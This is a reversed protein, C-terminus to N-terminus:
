LPPADEIRVTVGHGRMYEKLQGIRITNDHFLSAALVAEAGGERVADVFDHLTGAGGSAVVPVSVADTIARTLEIDYGALTGDADMSTLLIEGAGLSAAKVAWEVADLGTPVRGGGTYVEWRGPAVRKADLALVINASGIPEACEAILEPRKVAASNVAVKDAGALLTERADRVSRIGGGVTLPMFITEAVREVVHLTTAHGAPTASIDLFVLEDAGERYYVQAQEVPDGADRLNVFNVGKVVRGDKVDLCPIVRTTVGTSLSADPDVRAEYGSSAVCACRDFVSEARRSATTFPTASRVRGAARRRLRPRVLLNRSATTVTTAFHAGTEAVRTAAPSAVAAAASASRRARCAAVRASAPAAEIAAGHVAAFATAGASSSWEFRPAAAGAAASAASAAASATAPAM